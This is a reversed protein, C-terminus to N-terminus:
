RRRGLLVIALLTAGSRVVFHVNPMLIGIYDIANM